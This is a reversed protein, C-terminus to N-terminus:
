FADVVFGAPFVLVSVIFLYSTRINVYNIVVGHLLIPSPLYLEMMGPRQV